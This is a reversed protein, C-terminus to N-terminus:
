APDGPEPESSPDPPDSRDIGSPRPRPAPRPVDAYAAQAEVELGVLRYADGRVLALEPRRDDGVLDLVAPALAPTLRLVLALHVAADAAHGDDLASRALVLEDAGIPLDAAPARDDSVVDAGSSADWLGLSSAALAAQHRVEAERGAPDHRGTAVPGVAPVDFMAPVTPPMAAPDAPWVASRPMGAFLIDLSAGARATALEAYRRAESPRGRDMAAEAAVVLAVVPGDDGDLIAAAAEGAGVLDGTRWRIEALDALGDDDLADRGALTELEARALAFAGLRLHLGALILDPSRTTPEDATM